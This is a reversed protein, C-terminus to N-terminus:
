VHHNIGRETKNYSASKKRPRNGINSNLATFCNETASDNESVTEISDLKRFNDIETGSKVIAGANIHCCTGLKVNHDVVAM